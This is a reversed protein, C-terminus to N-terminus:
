YSNQVMEGPAVDIERQPIPYLTRIDAETLGAAVLPEFSAMVQKAM